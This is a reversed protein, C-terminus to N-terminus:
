PIGPVAPYLTMETRVGGPRAAVVAQQDDGPVLVARDEPQAAIVVPYGRDEVPCVHVRAGVAFVGAMVADQARNLVHVPQRVRSRARARRRDGVYPVSVRSSVVAKRRHRNRRCRITVLTPGDARGAVVSGARRRRAELSGGARGGRWAPRGSCSLVMPLSTTVSNMVSSPIMSSGPPLSPVSCPPQLKRWGAGSPWCNLPSSSSRASAWNSPRTVYWPNAAAQGDISSVPPSNALFIFAIGFYTTEVVSVSAVQVLVVIRRPVSRAASTVRTFSWYGPSMRTAPLAVSTWESVSSPRTSSYRSITCGTTSPVPLRSNALAPGSRSSASVRLPPGSTRSSM